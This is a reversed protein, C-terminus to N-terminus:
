RSGRAPSAPAAPAPAGRRLAVHEALAEEWHRLPAIGLAPLLRSALIAARPRRAPRPM